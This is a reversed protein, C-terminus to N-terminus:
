WLIDTAQVNPTAFLIQLDNGANGDLQVFLYSANADSVLTYHDNAGNTHLATLDIKDVGTQFDHIIDAAGPTSDTKAVYRFTDVGAGGFLADAAGGGIIIDNGPGGVITEGFNGGVLTNALEDGVVYAGSTLGQIDTANIDHISAIQFVGSASGGSIFTGGQYHLISVNSPNLATLDLKDVGTQFDHIIDLQGADPNSETATSYLFTDAGRGGFLADGGGGGIITDDQASGILTTATNDGVVYAGNTLGLVDAANLDNISAIQFGGNTGDGNIYTGGNFHLVSVNKPNLATLDLKDVSAKFDHIIDLHANTSEIASTYRFINTGAGGFLADGGAGGIVVDNGAGGVISDDNAGGVLTMGADDGVIYYNTAANTLVDTARVDGIAAILMNGDSTLPFFYTAGQYHLMSIYAPQLATLDIRDIGTQFDTIIDYASQTSDGYATYKFVDPGGGGTLNDASGKGWITDAGAEGTLQDYALNGTLTRGSTPLILDSTKLEGGYLITLVGTTTTVTLVGHPTGSAIAVNVVDLASLDIKDVGTTFDGIVDSSIATSDLSTLYVFRDSGVDGTMVDAGLGGVITDDGADGTLLDDGGRGSLVDDGDGGHLFEGAEGGMLQDARAAGYLREFGSLTDVGMGTNQPGTIALDITLGVASASYDIEDFGSGGDLVDDGLGGDLLDDGSGGLLTDDGALGALLDDGDAGEIQDAGAGGLVATVGADGHLVLGGDGLYVIEANDIHMGALNRPGNLWIEVPTQADVYVVDVGAGADVYDLGDASIEDDGGLGYIRDSGAGGILYDVYTDPQAGNAATASRGGYIVDDGAGGDVLTFGSGFAHIVDGGASGDIEGGPGYIGYSGLQDYRTNGPFQSASAVLQNNPDYLQATQVTGFFLDVPNISATFSTDPTLVVTYGAFGSAATAKFVVKDAAISVLNYGEASYFVSLLWNAEGKKDGYFYGDFTIPKHLTVVTM